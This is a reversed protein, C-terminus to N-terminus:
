KVYVYPFGFIKGPKGWPSELLDCYSDDTVLVSERARSKILINFLKLPCFFLNQLINTIIICHFESEM